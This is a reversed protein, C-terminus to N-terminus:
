APGESTSTATTTAQDSPTPTPKPGSMLMMMLSGILLLAAGGFMIQRKSLGGGSQMDRLHHGHDAHGGNQDEDEYVEGTELDAGCKKCEGMEVNIAQCHPCIFRGFKSSPQQGTDPM